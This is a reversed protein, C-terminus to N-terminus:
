FVMKATLVVTQMRKAIAMEEEKSDDEGSTDDDEGSDQAMATGLLLGLLALALLSSRALAAMTATCLHRSPRDSGERERERM